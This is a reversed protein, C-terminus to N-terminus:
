HRSLIRKFSFAKPLPLFYTRSEQPDTVFFIQFLKKPVSKRSEEEEEWFENEEQIERIILPTNGLEEWHNTLSTLVATNMMLQPEIVIIKKRIDKDKDEEEKRPHARIFEQLSLFHFVLFCVLIINSLSGMAVIM